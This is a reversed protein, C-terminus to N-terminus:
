RAEEEQQQETEGQNSGEPVGGPRQQVQAGAAAARGPERASAGKGERQPLAAQEDERAV